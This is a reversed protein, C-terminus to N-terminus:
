YFGAVGADEDGEWQVFYEFKMADLAVLDIVALDSRRARLRGSTRPHVRAKNEASEVF